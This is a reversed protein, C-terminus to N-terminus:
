HYAAIGLRYGQRFRYTLELGTRFEIAHGPDLNSNNDFFGTGLSLTFVLNNDFPWDKKLDHYLYKTGNISWSYGFAPILKRKTIEKGRYEISHRNAKMPKDDFVSIKGVTLNIM